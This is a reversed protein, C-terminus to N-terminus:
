GRASAKRLRENITKGLGEDPVLEAYIVELGAQDLRRLAGYLNQGAEELNKSPSLNEVVKWNGSRGEWALLGMTQPSEPANEGPQLLLLRTGPAYHSAMQGPAAVQPGSSIVTAFARLEEEGIPGRRLIKLGDECPCVITSELGHRCPGGDVLLPIKGDLEALVHAASTPSIRGFRNASPAALPEGLARIIQQFVPHVSMRLAVNPSGSTVLDPVLDTRPLVMTLPGPWFAAALANAIEGTKGGGSSLDALQPLWSLDPLHCILPDFLPRAKARFIEACAPASLARAALGYVTETPLAVPSNERLLSLVRALEGAGLLGDDGTVVTGTQM